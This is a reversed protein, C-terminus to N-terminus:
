SSKAKRSPHRDHYIFDDLAIIYGQAALRQLADLL